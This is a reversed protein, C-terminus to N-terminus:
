AREFEEKLLGYVLDDKWMNNVFVSKRFHAEKIMGCKKLLHISVANDPDVSATIKHKGLSSFVFRIIGLLAEYGYGNNQYEPAVTYGIEVQRSGQELFHIGADGVIRGDAKRCMALQFWSNPMNCPVQQQNAIFIRVDEIDKPHWLQFKQVEPASRYTFVYEADEWHLKRFYLRETQIFLEISNKEEVEIEMIKM